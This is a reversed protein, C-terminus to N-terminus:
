RDTIMDGEEGQASSAQNRDSNELDKQKQSVRPSVSRSRSRSRTFKRKYPSSASNSDSKKAKKTKSNKKKSEEVDRQNDEAEKGDILYSKENMILNIDSNNDKKPEFLQNNEPSKFGSESNLQEANKEPNEINESISEKENQSM